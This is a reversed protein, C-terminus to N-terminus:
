NTKMLKTRAVIQLLITVWFQTEIMKKLTLQSTDFGKVNFVEETAKQAFPFNLKLNARSRLNAAATWVENSKRWRGEREKRVNSM